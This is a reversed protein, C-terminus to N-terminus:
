GLPTSSVDRFSDITSTNTVGCKKWSVRDRLFSNVGNDNELTKAGDGTYRNTTQNEM